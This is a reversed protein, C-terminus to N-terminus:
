DANHQEKQEKYQTYQAQERLAHRMTAVFVLGLWLWWGGGADLATRLALAGSALLLANRTLYGVFARRTSHPREAPAAENGTRTSSTTHESM